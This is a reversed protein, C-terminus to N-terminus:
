MIRRLERERGILPDIRGQVARESFNITYKELASDPQQEQKRGPGPQYDPVPEQAGHSIQQVVNFRTVGESRLFYTAFSDQEAFIAVLVDDPDVQKKGCSQVHIVARQLVRTFGITKVPEIELNEQSLSTLNRLFFQQLKRRLTALNGGCSTIIRATQADDLLAFLIHEVTVYEHRHSKAEQVARMLAAELDQSLM